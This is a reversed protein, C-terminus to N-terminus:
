ISNDHRGSRCREGIPGFAFLDNSFTLQKRIMLRQWALALKAAKRVSDEEDVSIIKETTLDKGRLVIDTKESSLFLECWPQVSKMEECQYEDITFPALYEM